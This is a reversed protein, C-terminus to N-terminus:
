YPPSMNDAQILQVKTTPLNEIFKKSVLYTPIGIPLQIAYSDLDDKTPVKM